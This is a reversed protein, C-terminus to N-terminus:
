VKKFLIGSHYAGAPFEEEIEFGAERSIEKIENLSSKEGSPGYESSNWDIVLLRGEKKLARETELILAKKDEIQFFVNVITAIDLSSGAINTKKEIDCRIFDINLINEALAKSKLANLPLEQVDMAYVFGKNLRKALPITFGGSGCGFDAAIMDNKLEIKDLIEEPDLFM